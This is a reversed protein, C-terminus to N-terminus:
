STREVAARALLCLIEHGPAALTAATLRDMATGFLDSILAEVDKLAGSEVIITRLRTVDDNGLMGSGLHERLYERDERSAAAMARAVLVTHKGERLDDGAPKGTVDPDGFVGLIDDRLQFAEGLPLGIDNMAAIQRTDAGAILAGLVLPMRASYSASKARIVSRARDQDAAPDIGWPQSQFLIDLYQGVTVETQMEDFVLRATAARDAALPAVAQAMERGAAVLCLDGLLIAASQGFRAADGAWGEGAHRAAFAEHATPLGRRSDSADIVDDHLLAAAQFLELAAGARIAALRELGGPAGGHARYSWYVFAARLRKGGRLLAAAQDTLAATAVDFAALQTALQALHSTVAADVDVRLNELDVLAPM